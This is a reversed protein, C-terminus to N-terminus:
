TLNNQEKLYEDYWLDILHMRPLSSAPHKKRWNDMTEIYFELFSKVKMGSINQNEFRCIIAKVTEEPLESINTIEVGWKENWTYGQGAEGCYQSFGYTPHFPVTNIAFVSGDIVVTYRDNTAGGNDFVQVEKGQIIM